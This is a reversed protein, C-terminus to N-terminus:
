TNSSFQPKKRQNPFHHASADNVSRDFCFADCPCYFRSAQFRRCPLFFMSCVMTLPQMLFIGASDRILSQRFKQMIASSRTRRRLSASRRRSNIFHAVHLILFFGFGNGIQFIQNPNYQNPAPFLVQVQMFNSESSGSDLADALEAM